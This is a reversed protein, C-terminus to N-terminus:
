KGPAAAADRNTTDTSREARRLVEKTKLFRNSVKKELKKM